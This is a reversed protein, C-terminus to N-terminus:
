QSCIKPWGQPIKKLGYVQFRSPFGLFRLFSERLPMSDGNKKEHLQSLTKTEPGKLKLAAMSHSDFTIQARLKCLLDRGMMAVPCNPLYFFEHKIEHSGLNFQRYVLFPHCAWNGTARIIITRHKQSLPGVPQTM